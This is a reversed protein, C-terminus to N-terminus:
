LFRRLGIMMGLHTGEHFNNFAIAGEVSKMTFGFESTYEHFTTFAGANYDAITKDVTPFLLAKIQAIEEDTVDRTPKTGKRYAAIMDDSVMVAQGALKHVLLQQSVVVHAINWVLNNNFGEPVKNLQELTYNDLFQLMLRRSNRWVGFENEMPISIKIFTSFRKVQM